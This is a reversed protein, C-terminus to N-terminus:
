NNGRMRSKELLEGFRQFRPGDFLWFDDITKFRRLARRYEARVPFEPNGKAQKAYRHAEYALLDAAQLPLAKKSDSFTLEGMHNWLPDNEAVMEKKVGSFCQQWAYQHRTENVIFHM